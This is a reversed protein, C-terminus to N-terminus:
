PHNTKDNLRGRNTIVIFAESKSHAVPLGPILSSPKPYVRLIFLGTLYSQFESHIFRSIEYEEKNQSKSRMIISVFLIM